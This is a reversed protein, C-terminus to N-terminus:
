AAHSGWRCFDCDESAPPPSVQDLVSRAREVWALARDGNTEVWTEFVSITVGFDLPGFEPVYYLLIGYGAPAYGNRELILHYVDLQLQYAQHACDPKTGRSKHDVPVHGGNDLRLCADLRGVIYLGTREDQIAHIEPLCPIGAIRGQLLPPLIQQDAYRNWYGNIIRDLKTHVSPWPGRPRNIGRKLQLWFCRPCDRLLNLTTQSVSLGRRVPSASKTVM